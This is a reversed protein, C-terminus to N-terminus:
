KITLNFNEYGYAAKHKDFLEKVGEQLKELLENIQENTPNECKVVPIPTGLCSLIPVRYPIPLFFRGYFFVISIRLYRSLRKMIGYNDYVSTFCANNGFVYAPILYAGTELALKCLGHRSKLIIVEQCQGANSEFIEAIGGSSVGILEGNSLAKKVVKKNADIVGIYKLLNGMIPVYLLANAAIGRLYRNATRPVSLLGLISGFPFVGHPPTVIISPRDTPIYYNWLGRYSFYKLLLSSLWGRSSNKNFNLPINSITILALLIMLTVNRHYMIGYVFVIPGYLMLGFLIYWFVIVIAEEYFPMPIQHCQNTTFPEKSVISQEELIRVTDDNTTDTSIVKANYSLILKYPPIDVDNDTKKDSRTSM